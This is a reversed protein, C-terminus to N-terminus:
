DCATGDPPIELTLCYNTFGVARWFAVGSENAVLVDVTLRKTRPWIKSCLIEVARRGVWQRRRHRRHHSPPNHEHGSPLM